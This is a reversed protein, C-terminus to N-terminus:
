FETAVVMDGSARASGGPTCRILWDAQALAAQAGSEQNSLPHLGREGWSARVFTERSGTEPITGELPLERWHLVKGIAQGQLKALLPVLFLRATVMASTPNGPLGLVWKGKARGLWVPKGPKMAVKAFLLELGHPAFMPKAFDREGVSAGGTVIVVDALDLVKGALRELAPLADEGVVRDVIRAGAQEAMAAIGLTVSEPIADARLHALGPLALEDGTGIIAVKPQAHVQVTAQDAAAAAIMARPSLRTGAELLVDGAAFDSGASRVHWGPGYGEAFRVIGGEREAYEQMICRDTGKPMPAGTFIRAAEGPGVEGSFSLGARSEGVVRIPEDPSTSADLVAYGDMAAVAMRPAASRATVPEALVRGTACALAVEEIALPRVEAELRALAEDVTILRLCGATAAVRGRDLM